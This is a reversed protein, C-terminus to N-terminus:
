KQNLKNLYGAQLTSFSEYLRAGDRCAPGPATVTCTVCNSAHQRYATDAAMYRRYLDSTQRGTM